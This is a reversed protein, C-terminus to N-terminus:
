NESVTIKSKKTATNNTNATLKEELRTEIEELRTRLTEVEKLNYFFDFKETLKGFNTQIKEQMEATKTEADKVFSTMMKKGEEYSAKQQEVLMENYEKMKENALVIMGVSTYFMKKMM